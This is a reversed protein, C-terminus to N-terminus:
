TDTLLLLKGRTARSALAAHAAGADALPYTSDIRVQLEGVAIWEFLDGARGILEARDASYNGLTPRTLFLSGRANLVQPDVPPVAGSSQGYLVMYGRPRLASLSQDFTAKGVSDYVVDAGRGRTERRVVEAFDDRTYNVTIDAGLSRALEAKEETSVTGIVFAGRRKALQVLLQGVGGAAAHVVAVDGPKLPYTSHSLYHATMGQLMVAAALQDSVGQPIAVLKWAPVVAYQAYAGQQMAYAVRMGVSVESVGEGIAEVVGAAEQGLTLPLAGKYQGTRHYIDIFNVGSATIRVLAEGPGPAPTPVDEYRLVDVDGFDHIRVAKM